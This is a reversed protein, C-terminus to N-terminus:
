RSIMKIKYPLDRSKKRSPDNNGFVFEFKQELTLSSWRASTLAQYPFNQLRKKCSQLLLLDATAGLGERLQLFQTFLPVLFQFVELHVQILNSSLPLFCLRPFLAQRHTHESGNVYSRIEMNTVVQLYNIPSCAPTATKSKTPKMFEQNRREKMVEENIEMAFLHSHVGNLIGVQELKPLM